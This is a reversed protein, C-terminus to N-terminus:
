TRGFGGDERATKSDHHRKCLPQWNATDWFLAQCGKHPTIHDVVTAPTVKGQEECHACLPRRDLFTRRAKQWRSGYGQQAATPRQEQVPVYRKAIPAMPRHKPAAKAM